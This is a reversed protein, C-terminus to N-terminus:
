KGKPKIEGLIIRTGYRTIERNAAMAMLVEEAERRNMETAMASIVDDVPASEGPKGKLFQIVIQRAM